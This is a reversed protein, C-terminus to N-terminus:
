WSRIFLGVTSWIGITMVASIYGDVAYHYALQVSGLMILFWFLISAIRWKWGFHWAVLAFATSISVHMSPMASIGQGLQDGGVKQWQLLTSQVDLALIPYQMDLERLQDMLPRFHQSGTYAELFCPGVSSWLNALIAGLVIWSLLYTCLFQTRLRGPQFFIALMPLAIYLLLIWLQYFLSLLFTIEPTGTVPNIVRWADMGHLAIDWEIFTADWVYPVYTGVLRKAASFAPSFLIIAVLVPLATILRLIGHAIGEDNKIFHIPSEPRRTALLWLLCLSFSFFIGVAILVFNSLYSRWGLYGAGNWLMTAWVTIVFVVAILMPSADRKLGDILLPLVKIEHRPM